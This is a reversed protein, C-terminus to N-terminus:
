DGVAAMEVRNRGLDKARYLAKDARALIEDEAEGLTKQLVLRSTSNDEAILVRV